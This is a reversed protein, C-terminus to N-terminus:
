FVMELRHAFVSALDKESACDVVRELHGGIRLLCYVLHDHRVTVAYRTFVVVQSLLVFVALIVILPYQHVLPINRLVTSGAFPVHGGVVSRSRVLSVELGHAVLGNSSDHRDPILYRLGLLVIWARVTSSIVEPCVYAKRALTRMLNVVLLTAVFLLYFIWAFLSM